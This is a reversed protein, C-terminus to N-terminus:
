TTSTVPPTARWHMPRCAPQGQAPTFLPVRQVARFWPPMNITPQIGGQDDRIAMLGYDLYTM